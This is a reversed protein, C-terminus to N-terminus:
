QPTFEGTKQVELRRLARNTLVNEWDTGLSTPEVRPFVDVFSRVTAQQEMRALPAGLCYHIGFGFGLHPNPARDLVLKDPDSFQRPDRNAAATLFFVRDGARLQEGGIAVDEGVWRVLVRSHGEFRMFEEVASPVLDADAKLAAWVPPNTVILRLANAISSATTRYGAFVLLVGTAIVEDRTLKLGGDEAALLSAIIDSEPSGEEEEIVREVYSAMQQVGDHIRANRDAEEVAGAIFLSLGETWEHIKTYDDDRLHLMRTMVQAPIRQALESVMDIPGSEVKRIAKQVSSSVIEEIQESQSRIVKPTFANQIVRRLDTHRPPDLFPLWRGLLEFTARMENQQADPVRREFYPRVRDVSMRPDRLWARVDEFRTIVWARHRSNWHVPAAERMRNFYDFPADQFAQDTYSTADSVSPVTSGMM